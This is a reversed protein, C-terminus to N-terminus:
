FIELFNLVSDLGFRLEFFRLRLHHICWIQPSINLKKYTSIKLSEEVYIFPVGRVKQRNRGQYGTFIAM